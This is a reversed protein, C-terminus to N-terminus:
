KFNKRFESPTFGTYSKFDKSLKQLSSYGIHNVINVIKNDTYLLENKARELRISKVYQAPTTGFNKKFVDIFYKENFCMEDALIKVSLNGQINDDIFKKIADAFVNAKAFSDKERKDNELFLAVIELLTAKLTLASAADTKLHLSDLREFLRQAYSIDDLEIVYPFDIVDFLSVGDFHMVFDCWYKNYCTENESYLSVLSNKPLLVMHNKRPYFEEGNITIKGQGELILYICDRRRRHTERSWDPCLGHDVLIFDTQLKSIYQNLIQNQNHVDM